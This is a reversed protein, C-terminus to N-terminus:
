TSHLSSSLLPISRFKEMKPILDAYEESSSKLKLVEIMMGQYRPETEYAKDNIFYIKGIGEVIQKTEFIELHFCVPEDVNINEPIYCIYFGHRGFKIHPFGETFNLSVVMNLTPINEPIESLKLSPQKLYDILGDIDLPKTFINIAGANRLVPSPYTSFGTIVIIPMLRDALVKEILQYGNIIPMQMDTIIIDIPTDKLKLLAEEGNAAETVNFDEEILILSITSRIMEEDEVLLLNERNGM